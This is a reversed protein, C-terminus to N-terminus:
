EQNTKVFVINKDIGGTMKILNDEGILKVLNTIKEALDKRSYYFIKTHTGELLILKSLVDKDTVDLSHGYLYLNIKDANFAGRQGEIDKIWNMYTSSTAKFIRQYFKKFWVFRNDSDMREKPLYENIGLVMNCTDVSSDSAAKGHLFCYDCGNGPDYLKRYTNTYNFSLVHDIKILELEKLKFNIDLKGVYDNLYIELLRIVKELDVYVMKITEELFDISIRNGLYKQYEKKSNYNFREIKEFYAHSIKIEERGSKETKSKIEVLSNDFAQVISSIETEFDIWNGRGNCLM